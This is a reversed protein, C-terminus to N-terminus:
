EQAQRVLLDHAAKQAASLKAPIGVVLAPQSSADPLHLVLAEAPVPRAYDVARGDADIQVTRGPTRLGALRRGYELWEAMPDSGDRAVAPILEAEYYALARRFAEPDQTRLAKLQERYFERPDRAGAATLAEQFREDARARLDTEAM